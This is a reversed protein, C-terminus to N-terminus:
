VIKLTNQGFVIISINLIIAASSQTLFFYYDKVLKFLHLETYSEGQQLVSTKRTLTAPTGGTVRCVPGYVSPM